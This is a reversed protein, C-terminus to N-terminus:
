IVVTHRWTESFPGPLFPTPVKLQYPPHPATLMIQSSNGLYIANQGSLISWLALLQFQNLRNVDIM